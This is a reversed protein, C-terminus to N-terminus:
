VRVGSLLFRAAGDITTENDNAWRVIAKITEVKLRESSHKEDGPIPELDDDAPDPERLIQDVRSDRRKMDRLMTCISGRSRGLADAVDCHRMGSEIMAVARKVEGTTWLRRSDTMAGSGWATGDM